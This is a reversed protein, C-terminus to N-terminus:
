MRPPRPSTSSSKTPAACVARTCATPWRTGTASWTLTDTHKASTASNFTRSNLTPLALQTGILLGSASCPIHSQTMGRVSTDKIEVAEAEIEKWVGLRDLVRAMNPALQIGAGVFGLDAAYEFVDIHKFGEKALALACTLGGMGTTTLRGM